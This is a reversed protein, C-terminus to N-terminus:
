NAYTGAIRFASESEFLGSRERRNLAAKARHVHRPRKRSGAHTYGYAQEVEPRLQFFEPTDSTM